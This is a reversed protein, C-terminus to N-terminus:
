QLWRAQINVRIEELIDAASYQMRTINDLLTANKALEDENENGTIGQHSPVWMFKIRSNLPVIIKVVNRALHHEIYNKSIAQLASLSDTCIIFPKLSNVVTIHCLAKLEATLISTNEQM